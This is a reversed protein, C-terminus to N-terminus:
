EAEGLHQDLWKWARKPLWGQRGAGASVELVLVRDNPHVHEALRAFLQDAPEDTAVLWTSKLHHWWSHSSKLESILGAYDQGPERLDYSVLFVNM